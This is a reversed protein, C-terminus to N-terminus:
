KRYETVPTDRRERLGADPEPAAPPACGAAGVGKLYARRQAGRDYAARLRREHASAGTAQRLLSRYPIFGSMTSSVADLAADAAADGAKEGATKRASPADSDAGLIATLAMVEEAIRECTAPTMPEYPSVIADLKPPIPVKLLNFDNLPSMMAEGLGAQTDAVARDVGAQAQQTMGPGASAEGSPPKPNAACAGMGAALLALCAPKWHASPPMGKLMPQFRRSNFRDGASAMLGSTLRACVHPNGM